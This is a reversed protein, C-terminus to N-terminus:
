VELEQFDIWLDDYIHAKVKDEFTYSALKFAENELNYAFITRELPDVIWYERVGADMYLSLKRVYDHAPNDPSIIEIIWDPAGSCGRDTLKGRDCIVSIDPEVVTRNDQFLKVAFRSLYVKCLSKKFRIYNSIELFLFSLVDQHIRNPTTMYYFQGYILEARVDEPLRYYDEETYVNIRAPEM